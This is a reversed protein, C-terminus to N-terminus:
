SNLVKELPVKRNPSELHVLYEDFEDAAMIATPLASMEAECVNYKTNMIKYLTASCDTLEAEGIVVHYHANNHVVTTPKM